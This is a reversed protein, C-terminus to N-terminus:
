VAAGTVAPPAYLRREFEDWGMAEVEVVEMAALGVTRCAVTTDAVAILVAVHLRRQTVALGVDVRGRDMGVAAGYAPDFAEGLAMTQDDTLPADVALVLRVSWLGDTM